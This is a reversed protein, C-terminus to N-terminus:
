PTFLEDPYIRMIDWVTVLRAHLMLAPLLLLDGVLASFMTIVMMLGFASTPEFSSFLLVAFGLSISITTFLIPRGVHGITNELARERDRGHRLERNCRFMYHITDDVALGIATAAILSTAASLEMGLWGMLGFNMIIPFFNPVMAILGTKLSLFLFFMIGFVLVLTISLSQLQGKTLLSASHAMVVGFGTVEVRLNKSFDTNVYDYIKKQVELCDRTSSIHTRLLINARSFEPNVFRSSIVEGLVMRLDNTLMRVEFPEEPLVYFERQYQNTAYNVLKLYDAYSETKDVGDLTGLFDQLREIEQLHAPDEFYDDELANVVVNIPISGAMDQYIDHFHQSIPTSKKFYSVPNNEVRIRLIGSGVLLTLASVLPFLIKRHRINLAVVRQLLRDFVDKRAFGISDAGRPLPFLALIAPLLTFILILISLIGISAFIAFERIAHIKNVLQSGLGIITTVVALCTPLAVRLVGLYAAEAPSNAEVTARRYEAMVHMCYATGVAILFIPVIMTLMSLHTGTWAMLGFTWILATILITAPVFVGRFSQFLYTLVFLIVVFAIPPLKLFDKKTYMALAQSVLPLGIQYNSLDGKEQEIIKEVSEIVPEKDEIDELILTIATTKKDASILIKPFLEVPTLLEAFDALSKNGSIDIDKKIGPLSIVTKVGGVESLKQALNDIRAFTTPDFINQGKAVVLIIEESGFVEKFSQYRINEPLDEIALDYISTKFSLRPLQWGLIITILFILSIVLIPYDVVHRFYQRMM